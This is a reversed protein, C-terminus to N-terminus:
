VTIRHDLYLIACCGFAQTVTAGINEDRGVASARAVKQWRPPRGKVVRVMDRNTSTM